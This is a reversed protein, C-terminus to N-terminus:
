GFNREMIAKSFLLVIYYISMVGYIVASVWKVVKPYRDFLNLAMGENHVRRLLVKGRLISREEGLRLHEEVSEKFLFDIVFLLLMCTFLIIEIM